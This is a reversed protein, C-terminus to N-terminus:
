ERGTAKRQGAGMAKLREEGLSKTVDLLQIASPLSKVAGRLNELSDKIEKLGDIARTLEGFVLLQKESGILMLKTYNAYKWTAIALIITAFTLVATFFVLVWTALEM